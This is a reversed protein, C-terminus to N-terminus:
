DPLMARRAIPSLEGLPLLTQRPASPRADKRDLLAEFRGRAGPKTAEKKLWRSLGYADCTVVRTAGTAPSHYQLAVENEKDTAMALLGTRAWGLKAFIDGLRSAVLQSKGNIM